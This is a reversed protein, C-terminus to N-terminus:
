GKTKPNRYTNDCIWEYIARAKEVDDRAGKVVEDSLDKVAGTTQMHATPALYKALTEPTEPITNGPRSLDVKADRTAFRSKVLLVPKVGDAWEACVIGAGYRPDLAFRSHGGEAEFTNGMPRLWPRDEVLPVPLWVRTTGAPKLIEVRTTVEFVRWQSDVADAAFVRTAPAALAAGALGSTRLFDRRNM